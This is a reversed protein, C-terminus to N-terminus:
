FMPKSIEVSSRLSPTLSYTVGGGGGGGGGGRM